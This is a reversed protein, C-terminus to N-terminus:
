MSDSPQRSPEAPLPVQWVLKTVCTWGRSGVRLHISLILEACNTESRQMPETAQTDGCMGHACMYLLFIQIITWGNPNRYVNQSSKKDKIKVNEWDQNHNERLFRVKM